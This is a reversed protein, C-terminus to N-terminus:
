NLENLEAELEKDLDPLSSVSTKKKKKKKKKASENPQEKPPSSPVVVVEVKDLSLLDDDDEQNPVEEEYEDLVEVSSPPPKYDDNDEEDEDEEVIIEQVQSPSSGFQKDFFTFPSHLPIQFGSFQPVSCVGDVCVSEKEKSSSSGGSEIKKLSKLIGNIKKDQEAMKEEHEEITQNLTDIHSMIKGNQHLFYATISLLSVVEVVIHIINFTSLSM